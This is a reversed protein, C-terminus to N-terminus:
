RLGGTTSTYRAIGTGTIWVLVCMVVVNLVNLLILFNRFAGGTLVVSRLAVLLYATLLGVLLFLQIFINSM